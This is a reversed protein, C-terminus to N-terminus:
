NDKSPVVYINNNICKKCYIYLENHPENLIYVGIKDYTKYIENRLKFIKRQYKRVNEVNWRFEIGSEYLFLRVCEFATRHNAEEFIQLLIINKMYYTATDLVHDLPAVDCLMYLARSQDYTIFRYESAPLEKSRDLIMQNILVIENPVLVNM